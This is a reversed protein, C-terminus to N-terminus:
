SRWSEVERPSPAERKPRRQEISVTSSSLHEDMIIWLATQYGTVDGGRHGAVVAALHPPLGGGRELIACGRTHVVAIETSSLAGPTMAEWDLNARVDHLHQGESM